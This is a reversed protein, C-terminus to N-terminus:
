LPPNLLPGLVQQFLLPLSLLGGEQPVLKPIIAVHPELSSLCRFWLGAVWVWCSTKEEGRM